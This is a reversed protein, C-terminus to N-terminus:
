QRGVSRGRWQPSNTTGCGECPKPTKKQYPGRKKKAVVTNPLDMRHGLYPEIAVPKTHAPLPNPVIEPQDIAQIGTHSWQFMSASIETTPIYVNRPTENPPPNSTMMPDIQGESGQSLPIGGVLWSPCMNPTSFALLNQLSDSFTNNRTDSSSTPFLMESDGVPLISLLDNFSLCDSSETANTNTHTTNAEMPTNEMSSPTNRPNQDTSSSNSDDTLNGPLNESMFNLFTAPDVDFDFDFDSNLFCNVESM